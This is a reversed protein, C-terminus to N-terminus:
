TLLDLEKLRETYGLDRSTSILRTTRRQVREITVSQRKLYPSRIVNGYELRPQVLAKYLNNFIEKDLFTFTRKIIGMM